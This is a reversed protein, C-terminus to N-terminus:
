LCEQGEQSPQMPTARVLAMWTDFRLEVPRAPAARLTHLHKGAAVIVGCSSPVDDADGVGDALVYYCRGAADLYGLHKGAKRLDGLLDARTVKIEHVVPDLYETRSTSRISFLDPRVQRWGDGTRTRLALETFCIRGDMALAEAVRGVLAAHPSLARRHQRRQQALAQIGADSVRLYDHGSEPLVRDLLGAALLDLEVADQCPWGASRFMRRLRQWHVRGLPAADPHATSAM